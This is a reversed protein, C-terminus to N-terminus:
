ETVKKNIYFIIPKQEAQKFYASKSCFSYFSYKAMAKYPLVYFIPLVLVCSLVWGFFSLCYLSYKLTNGEMIKISKEIAKLSDKEKCAFIVADTMTYRKMTVYLFSVGIFFLIVTSAFLSIFLNRNFEEYEISYAFIGGMVACPLLYLVSWAIGLFFKIVTAMSVTIFQRFSVGKLSKRFSVEPNHNKLYFFRDTVLRATRWLVFSIILSLTFITPKLAGAYSSLSYLNTNKLFMCMYYNLLSLLAFATYPLISVAFCTLTNKVLRNKAKLKIYSMNM